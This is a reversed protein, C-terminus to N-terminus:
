WAVPDNGAEVWASFVDEALAPYHDVLELYIEKAQVTDGRGVALVGADRMARAEAVDEPTYYLADQGQKAVTVSLFGFVLLAGGAVLAPIASNAM